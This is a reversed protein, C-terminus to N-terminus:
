PLTVDGECPTKSAVDRRGLWLGAGVIAAVAVAVVAACGLRRSRPAAPADM